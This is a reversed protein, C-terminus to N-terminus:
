LWDGLTGIRFRWFGTFRATFAWQLGAGLLDTLIHIRYFWHFWDVLIRLVPSFNGVELCDNSSLLKLDLIKLHLKCLFGDWVKFIWLWDCWWRFKADLRSLFPFVSNSNELIQTRHSWNVAKISSYRCIGM